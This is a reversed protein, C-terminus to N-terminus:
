TALHTTRGCSTVGGARTHANVARMVPYPSVGFLEGLETHSKRPRGNEDPNRYEIAEAIQRPSLSPRRGGARGRARAGRLGAQTRERLRDREFVALSLFVHLILGGDPTTTDLDEIM